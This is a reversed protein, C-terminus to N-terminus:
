PNTISLEALVFLVLLLALLAFFTKNATVEALSSERSSRSPWSLSRPRLLFLVAGCLILLEQFGLRFM